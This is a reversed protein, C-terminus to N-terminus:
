RVGRYTGSCARSAARSLVVPCFRKPTKNHVPSLRRLIACVSTDAARLLLRSGEEELWLDNARTVRRNQLDIILADLAFKLHSFSLFM